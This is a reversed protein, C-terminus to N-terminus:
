EELHGKLTLYLAHAATPDLMVLDEIDERIAVELPTGDHPQQSICFWGEEDREILTEYSSACGGAGKATLRNLEKWEAM